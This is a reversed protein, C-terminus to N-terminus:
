EAADDVAVQLGFFTISPSWPSTITRSQPQRRGQLWPPRLSVAAPSAMSIVGSAASPFVWPRTAVGRYMAGSCTQAPYRDRRHACRGKRVRPSGTGVHSRGGAQPCRGRRSRRCSTVAPSIEACQSTSGVAGAGSSAMQAFASACAGAIIRGVLHQRCQSVVNASPHEVLRYLKYRSGSVTRSTRRPRLCRVSTVVAAAARNMAAAAAM